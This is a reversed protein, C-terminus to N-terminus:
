AGPDLLGEPVDVVVVGAEFSVVFRLPVLADGVVLLDSAPNAEVASVTGLPRGASTRVQAGVLEHVWLAGDVQMAPARLVVGRLAEAGTRDLVGGFTVIHRGQHPKSREVRLPGADSDLVSGEALRETRDTWLDVVVDGGLGHPKM